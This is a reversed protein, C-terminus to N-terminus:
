RAAGGRMLQKLREAFSGAPAGAPRRIVPDDFVHLTSVQSATLGLVLQKGGVEVVVIRERPGLAQSAVLRFVEGGPGGRLVQTRRYLWGCLAIAGIVVILSMAVNLLSGAPAGFAPAVAEGAALAPPATLLVACLPVLMSLRM